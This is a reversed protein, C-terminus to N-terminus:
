SGSQLNEKELEFPEFKNLFNATEFASRVHAGRVEEGRVEELLERDRFFITYETGTVTGAVGPEIIM